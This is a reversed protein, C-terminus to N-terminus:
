KNTEKKLPHGLRHRTESGLLYEEFEPAHGHVRTHAEIFRAADGCDRDLDMAGTPYHYSNTFDEATLGVAKLDDADVGLWGREYPPQTHASSYSSFKKM